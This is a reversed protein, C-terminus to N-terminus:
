FTDDDNEKKRYALLRSTLTTLRPAREIVEIGKRFADLEGLIILAKRARTVGTYILKRQLMINMQWTFPMIVIPYESGQSKHVSICYALAINNWNDPNYEVYTGQFNVILTTKRSESHQADIIEELVGIDGNFVDDDPQNKLQLIKDGERFTIYGVKIENRFTDPPNFCYQLATNLVEIGAAGQYMPSLVQIDDMSYGKQLADDVISIVAQRIATRQCPFFGVDQYKEQIFGENIDSSLQIVGSGEEQRYIHSLRIIPYIDAAILDRLVCGPGVSPLQNEDGIIVIKSINRSAKLLNAFLWVDVMSFEDIILLDAAVPNEEDRGFTNTELDWQLISHVTAADCGTLEYLRKAARGTPAACMIVSSPYVKRFLSAVARVVTTKGTGPGGTMIFFPSSFIKLVAERQVPDYVINMEEELDNLYEDLVDMDCEETKRYPFGALFRAIQRESDIQSKPYIRDEEIVLSGKIVATDLLEDFNCIIGNTRKEFFAKLEEETTYSNGKSVCIDMCVSVLLAYLRREDEESIGLSMAIRDATAFGFGDCEEIVRYPNEKLKELANKGYAKNLRVLNRIGIGHIALFRVLEELGNDESQIGQQITLIHRDTIGKVDRLVEVDERIKEICGEGLADVIREATKRGIGPFQIGSLYRIIGDRESPLPIEYTQMQFQMGYRPHETYIGSINYLIDKRIEPMIGTVTIVKEREDNIRFKAVTYFTEESRFLIYTIKGNLTILEENM